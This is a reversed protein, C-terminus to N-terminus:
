RADGGVAVVVFVLQLLLELGAPSEFLGGQGDRRALSSPTLTPSSVGGARLVHGLRFHHPGLRIRWRCPTLAQSVEFGCLQQHMQAAAPISEQDLTM